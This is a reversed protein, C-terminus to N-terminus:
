RTVETTPAPVPGSSPGRDPDAILDPALVRLRELAHRTQSKVTGASCGLVAATQVETLDEFYRLVLVARQKPTLRALAARLVLRDDSGAGAGARTRRRSRSRPSAGGVGGPRSTSTTSSGASTRSRTAARRSGGGGCRPRSCRPRCWTRPRTTTAPSCTRAGCCPAAGRPSTRTSPSRTRRSAWREGGPDDGRVGLVCRLGGGPPVAGCLTSRHTRRAGRRAGGETPQRQGLAREDGVREALLGGAPHEEQDGRDEAEDAGVAAQRLGVLREQVGLDAGLRQAQVDAELVPRAVPQQGDEEEDGAQLELALEDDPGQPVARSAARGTTAATHPMTAGASTNTTTAQPEGPAPWPQAMGTAVSMAKASATRAM